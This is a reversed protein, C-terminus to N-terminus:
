YDAKATPAMGLAFATIAAIAFTKAITSRKMTKEKGTM